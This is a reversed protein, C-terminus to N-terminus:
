DKCAGRLIAVKTNFCRFTHAIYSLNYITVSRPHIHCFFTDYRELDIPCINKLNNKDLVTEKPGVALYTRISYPHRPNRLSSSIEVGLDFDRFEAAYRKGVSIDSSSTFSVSSSDTNTNDQM